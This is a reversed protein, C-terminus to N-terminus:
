HQHNGTFWSKELVGSKELIKGAVLFINIYILPLIPALLRGFEGYGVTVTFIIQLVTIITLHRLFRGAVFFTIPLTIYFLYILGLNMIQWFKLLNTRDTIKINDDVTVISGPLDFAASVLYPLPNQALTAYTFKKLLKIKEPNGYIDPDLFNIFEFPDTKSTLRLYENYKGFYQTNIGDRPSLKAKLVRGLVAIHSPIQFEALHHYSKNIQIYTFPVFLYAILFILTYKFIPKRNNKMLISVAMALPLIIFAPRILLSVIATIGFYLFNNVTPKDYASQYFYILFMAMSIAIGETLLTREWPILLMNTGIFSSILASFTRKVGLRLLIIFVSFTAVIGLLHQILMIYISGERFLASDIPVGLFGTAKAILGIFVAYLFTRYYNFLIGPDTFHKVMDISGSYYGYSDPTLKILPFNDAYYIRAAVTCGALVAFPVLKKLESQKIINM